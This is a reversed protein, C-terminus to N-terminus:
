GYVTEEQQLEKTVYHLRDSAPLVLRISPPRWFLHSSLSQLRRPPVCEATSLKIRILTACM